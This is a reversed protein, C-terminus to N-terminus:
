FRLGLVSEVEKDISLNDIIFKTDLDDDLIDIDNSGARLDKIKTHFQKLRQEDFEIDSRYHESLLYLRLANMGYRNITDRVNIINGKSKGMKVKNMTLLGIHFWYRVNANFAKLEARQAEHHPYVLERAGAHIDYSGFNALAISTDQIHWWPLGEGLERSDISYDFKERSNWIMFDHDNRKGEILDIPKLTLEEKSMKALIGYDDISSTDFYVNGKNMYAHNNALLELILDHSYHAYDSALAFSINNVDINLLMLDNYFAALYRDVIQKYNTKTDRAKRFIKPDIDTLIVLISPKYGKYVLYRALLDLTIFLRAHGLHMYNYLTPGCVLIKLYRSM